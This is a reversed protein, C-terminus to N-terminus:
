QEPPETRTEIPESPTESPETRTEVPRTEGSGMTLPIRHTEHSEISAAKPIVVELVGDTFSATLDEPSIGEPLTVSREFGGRFSERMVYGAEESEEDRFREGKIVLVGDTVSIDIDDASVGPLEARLVVDDDRKMVDMTPMWVVNELETSVSPRVLRSFLRDFDREMTSLEAFPDWRTIAM